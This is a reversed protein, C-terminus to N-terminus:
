SWLSKVVSLLESRVKITYVHWNPNPVSMGKILDTTATQM